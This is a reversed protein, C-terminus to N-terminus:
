ATTKGLRNIAVLQYVIYFITGWVLAVLSVVTIVLPIPANAASAWLARQDITNKVDTPVGWNTSKSALLEGTQDNEEVKALVTVNGSPDGPIDTPFDAVAEGNDDTTVADGLPLSGFSKKVLFLVDVGKLPTHNKTVVAKAQKVSDQEQFTLTIQADTSTSDQACLRQSSTIFLSCCLALGRIINNLTPKM